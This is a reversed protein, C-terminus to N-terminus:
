SPRLLEYEIFQPELLLRHAKMRWSALGSLSLPGLVGSLGVAVGAAIKQLNHASDGVVVDFQKV